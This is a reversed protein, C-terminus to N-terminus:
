VQNESKICRKVGSKKKAFGRPVGLLKKKKGGKEGKGKKKRAPLIGLEAPGKRELPGAQTGQKNTKVVRREKRGRSFTKSKKLGGFKNQYLKSKRWAGPPNQSSGLSLKKPNKKPPPTTGKCKKPQDNAQNKSAHPESGSFFPQKAGEQEIHGKGV